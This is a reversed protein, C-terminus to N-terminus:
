HGEGLRIGAIIQFQNTTSTEFKVCNVEAPYPRVCRPPDWRNLM